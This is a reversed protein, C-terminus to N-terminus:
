RSRWSILGVRTFNIAREIDRKYRRACERVLRARPPSRLQTPPNEGKRPDLIRRRWLRRRRKTRSALVRRPAGRPQKDLKRTARETRRRPALIINRTCELKRTVPDYATIPRICTGRKRVTSRREIVIVFIRTIGWRKSARAFM